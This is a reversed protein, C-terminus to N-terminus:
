LHLMQLSFIACCKGKVPCTPCLQTNTLHTTQNTFSYAVVCSYSDDLCDVELPLSLHHQVVFPN